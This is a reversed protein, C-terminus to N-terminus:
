KWPLSRHFYLSLFIRPKFDEKIQVADALFNRWIESARWQTSKFIKEKKALYCGWQHLESTYFVSWGGGGGGGQMEIYCM